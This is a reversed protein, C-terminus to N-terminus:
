YYRKRWLRVVNAYRSKYIEKLLDSYDDCKEGSCTFFAYDPYNSSYGQEIVLYNQEQHSFFFLHISVKWDNIVEINAFSDIVQVLWRPSQIVNDALKIDCPLFQEL